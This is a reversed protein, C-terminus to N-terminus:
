TSIVAPILKIPERGERSWPNGARLMANLMVIFKRMCATLAMKPSKGAARLRWLLHADISQASSGRGHGYLPHRTRRRPWGWIARKGKMKGSDRNFPALDVLAAIKKRNLTGLEPLRALFTASLLQGVGPASRLLEAKERFAPTERVVTAIEKDLVAIQKKLCRRIAVLGARVSELAHYERNREATMMRVLQGRRTILARLKRTQPDPLRRPEPKMVEAFHALVDADIADTKALRGSARAFERVHRANVLAVALRKEDLRELLQREYGGSPELVVREPKLQALKKALRMVGRRDNPVVQREGSPRFAVDLQDKSVDVGVFCGSVMQKEEEDAWGQM